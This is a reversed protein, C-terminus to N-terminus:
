EAMELEGNENYDYYRTKSYEPHYEEYKVDHGDVNYYWYTYSYVEGNEYWIEHYLDDEGWWWEHDITGDPLYGRAVRYGEANPAGDGIEYYTMVGTEDYSETRTSGDANVCHVKQLIGYAYIEHHVTDTENQWMRALHSGDLAAEEILYLGNQDPAAYYTIKFERGDGSTWYQVRNGNEDYSNEGLACSLILCLCLLFVFLKKM